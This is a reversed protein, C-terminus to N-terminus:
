FAQKTEEKQVSNARKQVTKFSFQEARLWDSHLFKKMYIILQMFVKNVLLLRSLERKLFLVCQWENMTNDYHNVHQSVAKRM